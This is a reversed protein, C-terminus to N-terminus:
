RRSRGGGAPPLAREMLLMEIRIVAQDTKEGIQKLAAIERELGGLESRVLEKLATIDDETPCGDLEKRMEGMGTELKTLAARVNGVDKKVAAVDTKVGAIQELTAGTGVPNAKGQRLAAWAVLGIILLTLAVDFNVTEFM